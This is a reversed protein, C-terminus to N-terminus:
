HTSNSSEELCGKRKNHLFDTETVSLMRLWKFEVVYITESRENAVLDELHFSGGCEDLLMNCLNMIRSKCVVHETWRIRTSKIVRISNPLSCFKKAAVSELQKWVKIVCEFRRQIM